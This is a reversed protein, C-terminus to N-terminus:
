GRFNYRSLYSSALGGSATYRSSVSEASARANDAARSAVANVRKAFISSTGLLTKVKEGDAEALKEKNLSLSGDTGVTIGIAELERKQGMVTEKMSQRYYDNLVGSAQKLCKLTDNFETVVKSATDTLGKEGADAKEALLGTQEVLSSSAKQLREHSGRALRTSQVSNANMVDMWSSGTQIGSRKNRVSSLMSSRRSSLGARRKSMSVMQTTARRMGTRIRVM